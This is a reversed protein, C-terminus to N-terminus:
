SASEEIMEPTITLIGGGCGNFVVELIVEFHGKKFDPQDNEDYPNSSVCNINVDAESCSCPVNNSGAGGYWGLGWSSLMDYDYTNGSDLDKVSWYVMANDIPEYTSYDTVLVRLLVDGNNNATICTGIALKLTCDTPLQVTTTTTEGPVTTTTTSDGETTTLVIEEEIFGIPVSTTTEPETSTTSSTSPDTTTSTTSSDLPKKLGMNRVKVNSLLSNYRYGSNDNFDGDPSETRATISLQVSRINANRLVTPTSSTIENDDEDFFKFTFGQINEAFPLWEHDEVTGAFTTPDAPSVARQIQDTADNYRYRIWENTGDTNDDGDIDSIIELVATDYRIGIFPNNSGDTTMPYEISQLDGSPNYGGSAVDRSIMDMAARATYSMNKYQEQVEYRDRQLVFTSILATLIVIGVAMSIVLELMTFGSHNYKAQNKM